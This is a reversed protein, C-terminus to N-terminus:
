RFIFRDLNVQQKDVEAQAFDTNYTLDLTLSPTISYKLDAGVDFNSTQEKKNSFNTNTKVPSGEPSLNAEFTTVWSLFDLDSISYKHTPPSCKFANSM